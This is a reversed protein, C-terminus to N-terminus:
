INEPLFTYDRHYGSSTKIWKEAMTPLAYGWNEPVRHAACRFGNKRLVAASAQNEPMISATIIKVDTRSFVLDIMLGLTKTAIGKGWFRPLLRYGVSIKLLPARYGYFEALGCFEGDSFIGLILSERLAEDYMRSIVYDADDYKKEFLFTPLYRYVDDSEALERLAGADDATLRNLELGDRSIYPIESFLKKM